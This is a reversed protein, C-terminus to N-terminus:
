SGNIEVLYLINIYLCGFYIFYLKPQGVNIIIAYEKENTKLKKEFNSWNQNYNM